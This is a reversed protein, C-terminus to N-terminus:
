PQNQITVATNQLESNNTSIFPLKYISKWNLDTNNIEEEWTENNTRCSQLM